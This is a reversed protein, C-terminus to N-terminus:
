KHVEKSCVHCVNDDNAEALCGNAFVPIYAQAVQGVV